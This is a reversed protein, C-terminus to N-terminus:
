CRRDIQVVGAPTPPRQSPLAIEEWTTLLDRLHKLAEDVLAVNKQLNAEYLVQYIYNHLGYLEQSVQEQTPKLGLMLEVVIEQAKMLSNHAGEIDRNQMHLRAKAAFRVAGRYLLVVLESQSSTAAQSQRYAQYPLSAM